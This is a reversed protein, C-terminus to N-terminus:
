AMIMTTHFGLSFGYLTTAARKKRAKAQQQKQQQKSNKRHAHLQHRVFIM